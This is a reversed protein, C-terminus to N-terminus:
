FPSDPLSLGASKGQEFADFRLLWLGIGAVGQMYGTQAIANGPETRNEPQVWVFAKGHRTAHQVLHDSMRRAFVFYEEKGTVKYLALFFEGLGASGCRRSVNWFGPQPTEPIQWGDAADGESQIRHCTHLCRDEGDQAM